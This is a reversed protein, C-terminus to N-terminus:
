SEPIPKDPDPPTGPINYVSTRFLYKGYIIRLHYFVNYFIVKRM